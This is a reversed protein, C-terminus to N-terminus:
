GQSPSLFSLCPTRFFQVYHWVIFVHVDDETLIIRIGQFSFQFAPDVYWYTMPVWLSDRSKPLIRWSFSILIIPFLFSVTLGSSRKLVSILKITLFTDCAIEFFPNVWSHLASASLCPLYNQLWHYFLEQSAFCQLSNAKSFVMKRSIRGSTMLIKIIPQIHRKVFITEPDAKSIPPFEFRPRWM